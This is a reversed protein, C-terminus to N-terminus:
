EEIDTIEGMIGDEKVIYFEKDVDEFEVMYLDVIVISGVNINHEKLNSDSNMQIIKCPMSGFDEGWSTPVSILGGYKIEYPEVVVYEDKLNKINYKM